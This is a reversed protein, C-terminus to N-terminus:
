ACGPLQHQYSPRHGRWRNHRIRQETSFFSNHSLFTIKDHTDTLTIWNQNFRVTQTKYLFVPIRSQIGPYLHNQTSVKSLILAKINFIRYNLSHRLHFWHQSKKYLKIEIYLLICPTINIFSMNLILYNFWNTFEFETQFTHPDFASASM